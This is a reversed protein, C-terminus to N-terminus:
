VHARGIKLLGITSERRDLVILGFTKKDALMEELPALLFASDCHYKYTTIPDPPELALSYMDTKNSGIDISGIFIVVGNEPVKNILRVRSMASDLASQVNLRTVRSKINAAQGNEERLQAMVDSIQKDHPIYLSILETGRGVKSRLNDLMRKFEYKEQATFEM